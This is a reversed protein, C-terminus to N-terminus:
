KTPTLHFTRNTRMVRPAPETVKFLGIITKSDADWNLKKCRNTWDGTMEEGCDLFYSFNDVSFVPDAQDSKYGYPIDEGFKLKLSVRKGVNKIIFSKFAAKQTEPSGVFEPVVASRTKRTQAFGVSTFALLLAVLLVIKHKLISERKKSQNSSYILALM